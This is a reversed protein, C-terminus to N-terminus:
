TKDNTGSLSTRHMWSDVMGMCAVFLVAQPLVVLLVYMAILWPRTLRGAAVLRHVAAVGQFVYLFVILVLVDLAASGPEALGAAMLAVCVLVALGLIKPLHLAQFEQGFGGPHFLSAQWWRACLMTTVLSIVLGACTVANMWPAMALVREAYKGASEPALVQRVWIELVSKWWQAVDGLLFHSLVIYVLGCLGAALLMSGQAETRRLVTACFWTPLWIGLALLFMLYPSVGALMAVTATLLLSGTIVQLGTVPGKRLTVLAPVIGSFLYTMLPLILACVTFLSTIGIAQIRGRFIYEGLRRM